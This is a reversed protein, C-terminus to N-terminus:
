TLKPYRIAKNTGGSSSTTYNKGDTYGENHAERNYSGSSSRARGKGLKLGRKESLWQIALEEKRQVILKRSDIVALATCNSTQQHAIKRQNDQDSYWKSWIGSVFGECYNRGPGRYVGGYKLKAMAAVTMLIENYVAFAIAVDEEIGYFTVQVKTKVKHGYWAPWCKAIGNEDREVVDERYYWKVGGVFACAFSAANSEWECFKYGGFWGKLEAFTQNELDLIKEDVKNLKVEEETLQHQEMLKAAFRMANAIEGEAAAGNNALNLLKRVTDKVKEIDM